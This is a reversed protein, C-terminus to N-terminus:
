CVHAVLPPTDVAVGEVVAETEEGVAIRRQEDAVLAAGRVRWLLLQLGYLSQATIVANDLFCIALVTYNRSNAKILNPKM